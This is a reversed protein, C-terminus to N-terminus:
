FRSWCMGLFWSPSGTGVFVSVTGSPPNADKWEDGSFRQVPVGRKEFDGAIDNLFSRLGMRPEATIVVPKGSSVDIKEQIAKYPHYASSNLYAARSQPTEYPYARGLKENILAIVERANGPREDPNRRLLRAVIDALSVSIRPAYKLLSPAEQELRARLTLAESEAEFPFRGTLLRFVIVGIAYLDSAPGPQEGRLQEPSIYPVTGRLQAGGPESGVTALGFDILKLHLPQRQSIVINQPKLDGHVIHHTHLFALARALQVMVDITDELPRTLADSNLEEGQLYEMALYSAGGDGDAQGQEYVRPLHPHVLQKLADYESQLQQIAHSQSAPVIKLAVPPANPSNKQALWVEGMGGQGLLRELRYSGGITDGAKWDSM